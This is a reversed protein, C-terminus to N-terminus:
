PTIAIHTLRYSVLRELQPPQYVWDNARLTVSVFPQSRFDPPVPWSEDINTNSRLDFSGLETGEVEVTVIGDLEPRALRQGQVRLHTGANRLTLSVYPSANGDAHLGVNIHRADDDFPATLEARLDSGRQEPTRVAPPSDALITDYARAAEPWAPLPTEPLLERRRLLEYMAYAMARMAGKNWHPDTGSLRNEGRLAWTRSVACQQDAGLGGALERLALANDSRWNAVMCYEGGLRKVALALSEIARRAADFRRHSEFGLHQNLHNTNALGMFATPWDVTMLADGYERHQASFRAMGGFGRVGQTDDLDNNTTVHLVVDPQLLSLQRRLYACESLINWSSVAIHLVEVDDRGSRERLARELFVGLRDEAEIGYGFVYSDGLLVVRLMGDPKPLEYERERMGFSNSAVRTGRFPKDRLNSQLVRGVTADNHTDWVGGIQDLLDRVVHARVEPTDLLEQVQTPTLLDSNSREWLLWGVGLLLALSTSALAALLKRHGQGRASPLQARESM